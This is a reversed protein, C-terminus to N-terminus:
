SVLSSISEYLSFCFLFFPFFFHPYFVLLFSFFFFFFFLLLFFLFSVSFSFSFSCAFSLSLLFLDKKGISVMFSFFFLVSYFLASSFSLLFFPSLSGISTMEPLIELASSNVVTDGSFGFLYRHMGHEACRSLIIERRLDILFRYFLFCTRKFKLNPM